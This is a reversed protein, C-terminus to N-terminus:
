RVRALSALLKKPLDDDAHGAQSMALWAAGLVPEMTPELWEVNPLRSAAARRVYGTFKNGAAALGGTIAVPISQDAAFSLQEAVAVICAALEKGASELIIVAVADGQEAAEIVHPALAAITERKPAIPSMGTVILRLDAGFAREVTDSLSTAKGRGDAARIAAAVAHRGIDYGSGADDFLHGMGGARVARATRATNSSPTQGFAVSGTGAILVIGGTNNVRNPLAGALAIRMDHDITIQDEPALGIQLAVKMLRQRDEDTAVGALGLFARDCFRPAQGAQKWAAEFATALNREATALGVSHYNAPGGEGRGVINGQADVLVVRTQTGGGDIGAAIFPHADM